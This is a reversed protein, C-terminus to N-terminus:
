TVAAVSRQSSMPKSTPSTIGLRALAGSGAELELLALLIHETGIYNHGLRLAERFTLELAKGCGLRTPNPSRTPPRRCPRLWIRDSM